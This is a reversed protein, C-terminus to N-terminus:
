RETLSTLFRADSEALRRQLTVWYVDRENPERIARRDFPRFSRLWGVVGRPQRRARLSQLELEMQNM